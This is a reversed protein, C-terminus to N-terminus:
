RNCPFSDERKPPCYHCCRYLPKWFPYASPFFALAESRDNCFVFRLVAGSCTIFVWAQELADVDGPLLFLITENSRFSLRTGFTM